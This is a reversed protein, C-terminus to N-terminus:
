TEIATLAYYMTTSRHAIYHHDMKDHHYRNKYIRLIKISRKGQLADVDYHLQM